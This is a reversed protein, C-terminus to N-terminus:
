LLTIKLGFEALTQSTSPHLGGAALVNHISWAAIGPTSSRNSIRPQDNISEIIARKRLLPKDVMPM